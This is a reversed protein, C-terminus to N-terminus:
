RHVMWVHTSRQVTSIHAPHLLLHLALVLALLLHLFLHPLVRVNLNTGGIEPTSFPEARNMADVADLIGALLVRRQASTLRGHVARERQRLEAYAETWEPLHLRRRVSRLARAPGFGFSYLWVIRRTLAGILHQM